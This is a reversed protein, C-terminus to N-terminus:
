LWSDFKHDLNNDIALQYALKRVDSGRPGFFRAQMELAPRCRAQMQGADPRCRRVTRTADSSLQRSESPGTPPGECGSTKSSDPSLYQDM